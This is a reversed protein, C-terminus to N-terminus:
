TGSVGKFDFTITHIDDAYSVISLSDEKFRVKMRQFGIFDCTLVSGESPPTNMTLVDAGGDGTGVSISYGTDKVGNVYITRSSTSKGPLDWTQTTGDGVSVFLNTNYCYYPSFMYWSQWRGRMQRYFNIVKYADSKSIHMLIARGNYRPFVDKARRQESGSEMTTVDTRFEINVEFENTIYDLPFSSM